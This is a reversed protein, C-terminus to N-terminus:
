KLHHQLFWDYLKDTGYARDWCNHGVGEYETYEPAAGAAASSKLFDRRHTRRKAM